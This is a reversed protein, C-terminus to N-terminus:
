QATTQFKERQVETHIKNLTEKYWVKRSPEQSLVSAAQNTDSHTRQQLDESSPKASVTYPQLTRSADPLSGVATAERRMGQAGCGKPGLAKKAHRARARHGPFSGTLPLASVHPLAEDKDWSWSQSWKQTPISTAQATTSSHIEQERRFACMASTTLHLTIILLSPPFWFISPVELNGRSISKNPLCLSM